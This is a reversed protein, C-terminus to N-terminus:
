AAVELLTITSTVSQAQAVISTATSTKIQTKYTVASTTAPSDLLSLAYFTGPVEFIGPAASDVLLGVNYSGGTAIVTGNRLTQISSLARDNSVSFTSLHQGILVLIKSSASSPTITATLGSDAFTGSSVTTETTTTAGVVQLIKGTGVLASAVPVGNSDQWEDFRLVSSM